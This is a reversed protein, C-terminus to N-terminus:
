EIANIVIETVSKRVQNAQFFRELNEEFSVAAEWDSDLQSIFADIRGDREEKRAIHERSIVNDEIPLYVPEVINSEAYWLYVRPKHDIQDADSRTLSGPNVLLRGEYEEVFPKHNDGTVILPYHYKRLLKGAMPDTCGPWPTKAQYTLIHWVLIMQNVEPFFLSGETPTEGWNCEGLITIKKARQLLALGSKYSLEMNHQPMDHQGYVTHFQDPLHEITKSLLYPSPKWQNFFDGSHIVVCNYKKQLNSIFDVKKWQAKWHNDTRCVPQDERLHFDGCLIASPKKNQKTRKM